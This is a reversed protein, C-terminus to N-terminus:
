IKFKDVYLKTIHKPNQHLYRNTTEINSHGLITMVSKLDAGNELWITAMSHRFMHPHLKDINLKEKLMGMLYRVDCYAARRNRLKNFLLYESDSDNITKEILEISSYSFLVTRDTNNKTKTLLITGYDDYIKVNRKKINLIENIRAGTETLLRILCNYMLNNNVRPDLSDMYNNIRKLQERSLMDFTKRREKFKEIKFLNPFGVDSKRFMRKIIGIRKNITLNSCTKKMDFIYDDFINEPLEGVRYYGLNNIWREFHGLHNRYFKFTGYEFQRKVYSLYNNIMEKILM